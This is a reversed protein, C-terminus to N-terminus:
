RASRRQIANGESADLVLRADLDDKRLTGFAFMTYTANRALGYPVVPLLPGRTGTRRVELPHNGANLDRYPPEGLFQVRRVLAINPNQWLDLTSPFDSMANILRVRAQEGSPMLDDRIDVV